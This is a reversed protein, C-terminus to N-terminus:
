ASEVQALNEPEDLDEIRRVSLDLYEESQDIGVYRRGHKLASLGTTSSGCFPDLVLDGENSSALIIRDLLELPKQTPHKGHGKEAKRPSMIHWLNKMQKGGNMEKMLKYNFTHRAKDDRAAWIVTETGHTFYRCSLNPPPNVKFWAIDNLIKFGLSQMAFGISYIVHQTGSVWITGNPKLLRQCADLWRLNFAHNAEIGQCRDWRGKNVSVMRGSKCTVGDNSLFYPPDAFVVDFQEPAMAELLDLSDGEYLTCGRPNSYYPELETTWQVSKQM